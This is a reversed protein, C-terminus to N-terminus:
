RTLDNGISYINRYGFLQKFSYSEIARLKKKKEDLKHMLAKSVILAHVYSSVNFARLMTLYAKAFARCLKFWPAFPSPFYSLKRAVDNLSIISVCIHRYFALTALWIMEIANENQEEGKKRETKVRKRINIQSVNSVHSTQNVKMKLAGRHHHNACFKHPSFSRMGNKKRVNPWRSFTSAGQRKSRSKFWWSFLFSKTNPSYNGHVEFIMNDNDNVLVDHSLTITPKRM